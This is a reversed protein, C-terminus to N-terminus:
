LNTVQVLEIREGNTCGVVVCPANQSNLCDCTVSPHQMWVLSKVVPYLLSERCIVHNIHYM